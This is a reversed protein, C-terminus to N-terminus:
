TLKATASGAGRIMELLFVTWLEAHLLCKFTGAKAGGTFYHPRYTTPSLREWTVRPASPSRAGVEFVSCVVVRSPWPM